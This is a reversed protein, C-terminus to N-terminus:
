LASQLHIPTDTPEVEVITVLVSENKNEASIKYFKFVNNNDKIRAFVAKFETEGYGLFNLPIFEGGRRSFDFGFPETEGLRAFLISRFDRTNKIKPQIRLTLRHFCADEQNNLWPIFEVTKGNSTEETIAPCYVRIISEQSRRLVLDPYAEGTSYVPPKDEPLNIEFAVSLEFLLKHYKNPSLM